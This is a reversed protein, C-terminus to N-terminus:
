SLISRSSGELAARVGHIVEAPTSYAPHSRMLRATDYLSEMESAAALASAHALRPQGREIRGLEEARAVRKDCRCPARGSVLGCFTQTFGELARRARSLRQRYADESIACLEAAVAPPLDFVDGLVYALRHERDLCTLMALTCGLKVEAVMVPDASEPAGLGDLLDAGFREFSLRLQEVRSKKRDLLHRVAIRYAWTRVSSEGRFSDLRTVMKILIEQCADRADEPCATMRLALRFVDDQVARVVRELALRDGARAADVAAALNDPDINSEIVAPV